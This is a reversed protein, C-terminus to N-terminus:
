KQVLLDAQDIPLLTADWLLKATPVFDSAKKAVQFETGGFVTDRLFAYKKQLIESNKALHRFKEGHLRYFLFTEAFDEFSGTAAYGSVFDNASVSSSKTKEDLWSLRYFKVSPDNEFIVKGHDRFRSAGGTESELVGLDVLHGVEHLFVSIMEDENNMSATHLILKKQNSLGRSANETNRVELTRLPQFFNKPLAAMTKKLTDEIHLLEKKDEASQFNRAAFHGDWSEFKVEPFPRVVKVKLRERVPFIINWNTGSKAAPHLVIEESGAFSSFLSSLLFFLSLAM